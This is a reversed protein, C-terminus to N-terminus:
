QQEPNLAKELSAFFDDIEATYEERKKVIRGQTDRKLDLPGTTRCLTKHPLGFLDEFPEWNTSSVKDLGLYTSARICWYALHAKTKIPGTPTPWLHFFANNEIDVKWNLLAASQACMFLAWAGQTHFAAPTYQVFLDSESNGQILPWYFNKFSTEM